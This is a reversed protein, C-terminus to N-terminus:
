RPSELSYWCPMTLIIKMFKQKKMCQVFTAEANSPNLCKLIQSIDSQFNVPLKAVMRCWESKRPSVQIKRPYGESDTNGAENPLPLSSFWPIGLIKRPFDWFKRPLGLKMQYPLPRQSITSVFATKFRGISLSSEDLACPRLIKSFWRFRTMNTNM